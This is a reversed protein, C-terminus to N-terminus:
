RPALAEIAGAGTCAGGLSRLARGQMGGLAFTPIRSFRSLKAWAVAGLPLIEPHSATAFAPSLFVLDAGARAAQQLEMFDHASATMPRRRPKVLPLRGGRLHIGARLAAALRPDGAIVLPIRRVRCLRAALRALALRDAAGDHRFVVGAIDRPLRAIAPLPDPLREADTFLWLTPGAIRKRRKVARADRILRGDM